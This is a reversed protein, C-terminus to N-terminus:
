QKAISDIESQFDNIISDIYPIMQINSNSVLSLLTSSLFNHVKTFPTGWAGYNVINVDTKYYYDTLYNKMLNDDGYRSLNSAIAKANLESIAPHTYTRFLNAMLYSIGEADKDSVTAPMYYIQTDADMVLNGSKNDPGIPYGVVRLRNIGVSTFESPMNVGLYQACNDIFAKGKKFMASDITAVKHMNFMDSIFTLARITNPNNASFKFEGDIYEIVTGSNAAIIGSVVGPTYLAVGYQDIIGDGDYDRTTKKAMEGLTEWNWNGTLALEVPDELGERDRIDLNYVLGGKNYPAWIPIGWYKGNYGTWLKIIPNDFRPDGSDFDIFESVPRIINNVMLNPKTFLLRTFFIDISCTGSLVEQALLTHSTAPASTYPKQVIKCNLKEEIERAHDWEEDLVPDTGYTYPDGNAVAPYTVYPGTYGGNFRGIYVTRGGLDYNYEKLEVIADDQSNEDDSGNFNGDDNNNDYSASNEDENDYIDKTEDKRSSDAGNKSSSIKTTSKITSGGSKKLTEQPNKQKCGFQLLIIVCVCLVVSLYKVMRNM